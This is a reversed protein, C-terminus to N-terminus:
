WLEGSPPSAFRWCPAPPHDLITGARRISASQRNRGFGAHSGAVGEERQAPRRVHGRRPLLRDGGAHGSCLGMLSTACCGCGVRSPMQGLAMARTILTAAQSGSNGGTSICLPVFLSLVVMAAIADEFHALATFTFLEACSCVPVALRGSGGSRASIRGGPLEGGDARRGGHAARGRDGGAVIVDIVDDHTVIGVLRSDDDVVPMALLDYHAM